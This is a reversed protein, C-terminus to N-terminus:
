SNSAEQSSSTNNNGPNDPKTEKEAKLQKITNNLRIIQANNIVIQTKDNYYENKLQNYKKTIEKKRLYLFYSVALALVAIAGMVMLQKKKNDNRHVVNLLNMFDNNNM